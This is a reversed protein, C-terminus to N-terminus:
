LIYQVSSDASSFSTTLSICKYYLNTVTSYYDAPESMECLMNSSTKFSIKLHTQQFMGPINSQVLYTYSKM